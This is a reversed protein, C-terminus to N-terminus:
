RECGFAAAIDGIYRPENTPNHIPICAGRLFDHTTDMWDDMRARMDQLVETYTPDEICNHFENPDVYLDYLEEFPRPRGSDFINNDPNNEQLEDPLPWYNRQSYNRILKYRQSRVARMLDADEHFHRETFVAPNPTYSEGSLVSAYSRGQLNDPLACGTIELLTPVLDVHSISHNCVSEPKIHGPWRMIMATAIGPDYLTSKARPMAIGHDTTFIVLTNNDLGTRKLTSFVSDVVEDMYSVSGCYQSILRRNVDFNPLYAPLKIDDPNYRGQYQDRVWLGHCEWTAANIYFPADERTHSELIANVDSVVDEVYLNNNGLHKYRNRSRDQREHQIGCNYTEYGATNLYDVITKESEPLSWAFGQHALGMLGNSHAYRGTLMCGRAPSCPSSACFHNSFRIGESAMRDLTPTKVNPDGYCGLMTGTDHVTIHIINPRENTQVAPM